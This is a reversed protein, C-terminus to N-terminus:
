SKRLLNYLVDGVHTGSKQVTSLMPLGNTELGVTINHDYM